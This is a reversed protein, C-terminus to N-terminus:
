CLQNWIPGFMLCAWANIKLTLILRLCLWPSIDGLAQYSGHSLRKIMLDLKNFYIPWNSPIHHFYSASYYFNYYYSM